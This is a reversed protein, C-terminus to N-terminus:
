IQFTHHSSMGAYMINNMPFGTMIKKISKVANKNQLKKFLEKYHSKKVISINAIKLKHRYRDVLEELLLKHGHSTVIVRLSRCVM